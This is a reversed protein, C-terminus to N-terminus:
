APVTTLMTRTKRARTAKHGNSSAREAAIRELLIAAPEDNPDQSVLKGSFAAALISSRLAATRLVWLAMESELTDIQSTLREIEIAIRTQESLPPIPVLFGQISRLGVNAQTTDNVAALAQARAVPSISYYYQYRPDVFGHMTKVLACSYSVLFEQADGVLRSEGITGYRPYILDGVEPRIKAALRRFDDLSIKKAGMFDIQNNPLFDRPSVYPVGQDVADPMKHDIDGIMLAITQWEACTWGRPLPFPLSRGSASAPTSTKRIREGRRAKERLLRALLQDGPEDAPDQVCLRGTIGAHLVANRMRKLNQRVRELAQVGADLRSFQEEIAAIIREQEASPPLAIPVTKALPGSSISAQNVHNVCRHRFYGTMWLYHLHHALYSPVVGRAPAIRTMHNSFAWDSPRRIVATKGVLAPSNTNNFLVDGDNLRPGNQDPVYKIDTLDITGDRSVNMPRLHPVGQGDQNHKGSPFGPQIATALAAVDCVMWGPPLDALRVPYQRLDDPSFTM